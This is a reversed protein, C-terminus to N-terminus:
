PLRIKREKPDPNRRFLIAMTGIVGVLEARLGHCLEEAARRRGDRDGALKVKVLEHHALARDVEREVERTLGKQGLRVVPELGHALGRLYKRQGSALEIM